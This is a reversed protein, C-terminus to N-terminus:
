GFRYGFCDIEDRYRDYVLQRTAADYYERWDYSEPAANVEPLPGPDLGLRGAFAPWQEHLTETFLIEHVGIKGDWDVLWYLQSRMQWLGDFRELFDAFSTDVPVGLRNRREPNRMTDNYWSVMRAWPNRVVSFIFFGEDILGSTKPSFIMEGYRRGLISLVERPSRGPQRAHRWVQFPTTPTYHRLTLHSRVRKDGGLARTVATGGTKPIHVFLIRRQKDIM